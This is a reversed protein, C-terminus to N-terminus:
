SSFMDDVPLNRATATSESANLAGAPACAGCISFFTEIFIASIIMSARELLARLVAILNGDYDNILSAIDGRGHAAVSGIWM